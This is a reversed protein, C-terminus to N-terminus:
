KCVPTVANVTATGSKFQNNMVAYTFTSTWEVMNDYNWGGPGHGGKNINIWFTPVKSAMKSYIYQPGYGTLGGTGKSDCKYVKGVNVHLLEDCSGFMMLLPTKANDIINPNLLCGALTFVGAIDTNVSAATKNTAGTNANLSGGINKLLNDKDEFDDYYATNLATIAGASQGGVFILNPNIGLRSANQKIYKIATRADQTARLVALNFEDTNTTKCQILDLEGSFGIRYDVACVVYGKLAMGKCMEQIGDDVKMTFGGGFLYVICPRNTTNDGKPTLIDMILNMSKGKQTIVDKAYYETTINFDQFVFDKYKVGNPNYNVKLAPANTYSTPKIRDPNNPYDIQYARAPLQNTAKKLNQDVQAIKKALDCNTFFLVM